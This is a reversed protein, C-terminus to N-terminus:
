HAALRIGLLVKLAVPQGDIQSPQFEWNSLAETVLANVQPDPTKKVVLQELKGSSTLVGSVIIWKRACSVALEPTLEPVQKLTAYPSNPTGVVQSSAGPNAPDPAPKLPAYQLTWSPTSDAEGTRMDLYVTYVKQNEFVGFDALGGGSSATSTITMNYSGPTRTTLSPRIGGSAGANGYNGGRVSIGPFGGGGPASGSGKGSGLATGTGAGTGIGAVLGRGSGKGEAYANLGNGAGAGYRSGNGTGSGTSGVGNGGGSAIDAIADGSANDSPIGNGSAKTATGGGKTGASPEAILTSDGPAVAFLSRAEGLPVKALVDPPPPIANMVLLGQRERSSVPVDSTKTPAPVPKPPPAQPMAPESEALDPLKSSADARLTLKPAQVPKEVPRIAMRGSEVKMVPKPPDPAPASPAIALNPLPFTKQLIPPNKLMPRLITQIGLKAMPPASVLPQQGPYAFGKHSRARLGSSAEAAAGSGGGQEGAGESGGGLAPLFLPDVKMAELKPPVVEAAHVYAFRTSSIVILLLALQHVIVSLGLSRGARYGTGVELFSLAERAPPAPDKPLSDLLARVAEPAKTRNAREQLQDQTTLNM